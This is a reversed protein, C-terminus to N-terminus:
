LQYSFIPFARRQAAPGARHVRHTSGTRIGRHRPLNAHGGGGDESVPLHASSAEVRESLAEVVLVTRRKGEIREGRQLYENRPTARRKTRSASDVQGSLWVLTM